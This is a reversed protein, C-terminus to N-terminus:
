KNGTTWPSDRYQILTDYVFQFYQFLDATVDCVKVDATAATAPDIRRVFIISKEAGVINDLINFFEPELKVQRGPIRNPPFTVPGQYRLLVCVFIPCVLYFFQNEDSGRGSGLFGVLWTPL